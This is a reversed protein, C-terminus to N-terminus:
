EFPLWDRSILKLIEIQRGDEPKDPFRAELIAAHSPELATLLMMEIGVDSDKDVYGYIERDLGPFSINFCQYKNEDSWAYNYYSGRSVLVHLTTPKTSKSDLFSGIHESQYLTSTFWDIKYTDNDPTLNFFWTVDKAPLEFAVSVIGHGIMGYTLNSETIPKSDHRSYFEKVLPAVTDKERLYQLKLLYGDAQLFQRVVNGAREIDLDYRLGASLPTAKEPAQNQTTKATSTKDNILFFFITAVGIIAVFMGVLTFREFRGESDFLWSTAPNTQLFVKVPDQKFDSQEAHSEELLTHWNDAFKQQTEEALMAEELAVAPNSEGFSKEQLFHSYRSKWESISSPSLHLDRAVKSVSAGTQIVRRVAERVRIEEPISELEHQSLDRFEFPDRVSSLPNQEFADAAAFRPTPPLQPNSDPPPAPM